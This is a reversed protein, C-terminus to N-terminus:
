RWPGFAETYFRFRAATEEDKLGFEAGSYEHRGHSGQSHKVLYEEARKRGAPKLRFGLDHLAQEATGLPNKALAAYRVDLVPQALSKRQALNRRLEGELYALNAVASRRPNPADSFGAHGSAVLSALSNAVEVPDRHLQVIMAEPVAEVLADLGGLHDPAKLV